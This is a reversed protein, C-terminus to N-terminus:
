SNRGTGEPPWRHKAVACTALTRVTGTRMAALALEPLQLYCTDDLYAWIAVDPHAAQTELLAWHYGVAFFFPGLSDGQTCGEM